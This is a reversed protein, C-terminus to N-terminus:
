VDEGGSSSQRYAIVLYREASDELKVEGFGAQSLLWFLEAEDPLFDSSVVGGISCHLNNVAKRSMTHSIVLRGGGKIVRRIERLAQLKDGFHPFANNLIALDFLEDDLPIIAADAQVYHINGKFNKSRAEQLMKASIDMEVIMGGEKVAEILFPMLIGTGSGIDLVHSGQKINIKIIIEKLCVLREETIQSDWMPALCDFYKRKRAIDTKRSLETAM